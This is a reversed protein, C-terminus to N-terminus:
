WYQCWFSLQETDPKPIEVSKYCKYAPYAYGLAMRCAFSVSFCRMFGGKEIKAWLWICGYAHQTHIYTPSPSSAVHMREMSEMCAYMNCVYAHCMCLWVDYWADWWDKMCAHMCAYTHLHMGLRGMWADAHMLAHRHVVCCAHPIWCQPHCFDVVCAMCTRCPNAHMAHLHVVCLCAHPNLMWSQLLWRCMGHMHVVSKCAICAFAGGMVHMPIRYEHHCFDVVAMCTSCPNAHLHEVHCAYPNLISFTLPVHWAHLAHIRHSCIVFTLAHLADSISVYPGQHPSFGDNDFGASEKRLFLVSVSLCLSLSAFFFVSLCRSEM